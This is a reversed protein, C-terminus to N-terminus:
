EQEEESSEEKLDKTCIYECLAELAGKVDVVSKSEMAQMLDEAIMKLEGGAESGVEMEEKVEMDKGPKDLRSLIVSVAKKKDNLFM